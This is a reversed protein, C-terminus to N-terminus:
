AAQASCVEVTYGAQTTITECESPTVMRAGLSLLVRGIRPTIPRQDGRAQKVLRAQEAARLLERGREHVHYENLLM